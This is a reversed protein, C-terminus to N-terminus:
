EDRPRIVDRTSSVSWEDGDKKGIYIQITSNSSPTTDYAFNLVRFGKNAPTRPEDIVFWQWGDGLDPFDIRQEKTSWKVQEVVSDILQDAKPDPPRKTTSTNIPSLTVPSTHLVQQIAIAGILVATTIFLWAVFHPKAYGTEAYSGFLLFSGFLGLLGCPFLPGWDEFQEPWYIWVIWSVYGFLTLLWPWWTNVRQGSVDNKADSSPVTRDNAAVARSQGRRARWGILATILGILAAAAEIWSSLSATIM